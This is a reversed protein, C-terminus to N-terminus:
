SKDPRVSTVRSEASVPQLPGSDFREKVRGSANAAVSHLADLGFSTLAFRAVSDELLDRSAPAGTAIGSYVESGIVGAGVGGLVNAGAHTLFTKADLKSGATFHMHGIGTKEIGDMVGHSIGYQSTFCLSALMTNMGRQQWFDKQHSDAPAFLTGYLAGNVASHALPALFRQAHEAGMITSLVPVDDALRRASMFIESGGVRRTLLDTAVFGPISCVGAGITQAYWRSSGLSADELPSVLQVDPILNEGTVHDVLQGIGNSSDEVGVHVCSRGAERLWQPLTLRQDASDDAGDPTESHKGKATRTQHESFEPHVKPFLDDDSTHAAKHAAAPAEAHFAGSEFPEAMIGAPYVEQGRFVLEDQL